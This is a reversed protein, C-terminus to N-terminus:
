ALNDGVLLDGFVYIWAPRNVFRIFWKTNDTGCGGSLCLYDGCIYRTSGLWFVGIHLIKCLGFGLELLSSM